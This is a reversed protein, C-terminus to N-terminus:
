VKINTNSFAAVTTIVIKQIKTSGVVAVKSIRSSVSKSVRKFSAVVERNISSGTVDILILRDGHLTRDSIKANNEVVKVYEEGSLNTYDHLIITKGKHSLLRRRDTSSPMIIGYCIRPSCCNSRLFFFGVQFRL